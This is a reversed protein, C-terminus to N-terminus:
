PTEERSTDPKKLLRLKLESIQKELNELRAQPDFYVNHVTKNISSLSTEADRALNMLEGVVEDQLHRRSNSIKVKLQSIQNKITKTSNILDDLYEKKESTM